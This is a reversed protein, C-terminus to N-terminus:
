ERTASRLEAIAAAARSAPAKIHDARCRRLVSAGSDAAGSVKSCPQEAARAELPKGAFALAANLRPNAAQLSQDEM